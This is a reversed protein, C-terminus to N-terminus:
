GSLHASVWNSFMHDLGRQGTFLEAWEPDLPGISPNGHSRAQIHVRTCPYLVLVCLGVLDVSHGIPCHTTFTDPLSPLYETPSISVVCGVIVGCHAVQQLKVYQKKPWTAKFCVEIQPYVILRHLLGGM